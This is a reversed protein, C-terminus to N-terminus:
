PNNYDEEPNNWDLKNTLAKFCEEMNYELEISSKCTGKLLEYVPGVLHAQTLNDIKLRNMAYKSFDILTAMLEDFTLSDKAASVMKNFWPQEPQDIPPQNADNAVDDVTQEIDDSAMELVLEEVTISKRSKSTKAPSKGKSSEKSTSSKKSPDSEKTRSRKTKKGQNPGASPDKNDRDRKRLVKKPDVQGHAIADDLSMSNLLADFLAQHKDHSLYSHIKYIKQLADGLNYGLYANIALPIEARLSDLLTANHDVEKIEQVDKELVHDLHYPPPLLIMGPAVSPTEPIPTLVLPESIVSVPVNLVFRSQIHPIEFSSSVYLSSGSQSLEVKKIDDKIEEAKEADANTADTIEEDNNGTDADEANSMEEDEDDNRHVFEDGSEEDDTKELDISKDDDDDNKEELENTGLVTVESLTAHIVTSEDPVGPSVGIGESSGEVLSQSKNSKRSAKLEQMTDDALKEELTLTQIVKLKQSLDHYMKKSVRSTDKFAIGSPRRRAPEPDSKEITTQKRAPESDSEDSDEVAAQPADATKKGRSGKGRSKKPPILSTSYKIFMKYSKSQKIGETLMTEPIPLGYEQFDKGIRPYHMIECRGKKLQRNDIKSHLDEWILEPYDVNERNDKANSNSPPITIGVRTTIYNDQHLPVFSKSGAKSKTIPENSKTSLSNSTKFLNILFNNSSSVLSFQQSKTM